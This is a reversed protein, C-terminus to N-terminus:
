GKKTSKSVGAKNASNVVPSAKKTGGMKATGIVASQKKKAIVKQAM